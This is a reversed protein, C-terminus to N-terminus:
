EANLVFQRLVVSLYASRSLAFVKGVPRQRRVMTSSRSVSSWLVISRRRRMRQQEFGHPVGFSVNVRCAFISRRKYAGLKAECREYATEELSLEDLCEYVAQHTRHNDKERSHVSVTSTPKASRTQM